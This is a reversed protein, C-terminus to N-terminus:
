TSVWKRNKTWETRFGDLISNPPLFFPPFFALLSNPPPPPPLPRPLPLPLARGAGPPAPDCWLYVLNNFAAGGQSSKNWCCNNIHQNKAPVFCRTWHPAMNLDFMSFFQHVKGDVQGHPYQEEEGGGLFFRRRESCGSCLTEERECVVVIWTGKKLRSYSKPWHSEFRQVPLFSHRRPNIFSSRTPWPKLPTTRLYCLPKQEEKLERSLLELPPYAMFQWQSCVKGKNEEQRSGRKGWKDM